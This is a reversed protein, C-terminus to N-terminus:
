DVFKITLLLLENNDIVQNQNHNQFIVFYLHDGTFESISREKENIFLKEIPWELHYLDGAQTIVNARRKEDNEFFIYHHSDSSLFISEYPKSGQGALGSGLAFCATEDIRVGPKIGNFLAMSTDVAIQITNLLNDEFSYPGDWWRLNFNKRQLEITKSGDSLKQAKGSQSIVVFCEGQFSSTSRKSACSFLIVALLIFNLSKPFKNM